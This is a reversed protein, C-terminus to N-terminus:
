VVGMKSLNKYRKSMGADGGRMAAQILKQDGLGDRMAMSLFEMPDAVDGGYAATQTDLGDTEELFTDLASGPTVTGQTPKPKLAFEGRGKEFNRNRLTRPNGFLSGSALLNLGATAGEGGRFMDRVSSGPKINGTASMVSDQVKGANAPSGASFSQPSIRTGRTAQPAPPTWATGAPRNWKAIETENEADMAVRGPRMRSGTPDAAFESEEKRKLWPTKRYITQQFTPQSKEAIGMTSNNGFGRSM